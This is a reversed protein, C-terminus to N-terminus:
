ERSFGHANALVVTRIESSKWCVKELQKTLKKVSSVWDNLSEFTAANTVDYVFVLGHAGYLYNSLM